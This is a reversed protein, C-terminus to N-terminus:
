RSAQLRGRGAPDCAVAPLPTGAAAPARVSEAGTELARRSFDDPKLGVNYDVQEVVLDTCSGETADVMTM